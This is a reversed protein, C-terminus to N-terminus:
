ILGRLALGIATTYALSESKSIPPLEKAKRSDAPVINVWPNALEVKKKLTLTLFSVLGKLQAGGGCLLVKHIFGDKTHEHTVHEQYFTISKQIQECLDTLIPTLADFVKGEMKTKDLGYKLKIEEAKDRKLKLEKAIVKTFDESSIPIEQTFRLARNSFVIVETRVAGLDIILRAQGAESPKILSRSIAVSEPEMAVVELNINKLVKLYSDIIKKPCAALFVDLHDITRSREGHISTSTEIIEWGLHVKKRELPINAEAEWKIAETVEEPKMKPIQVVKTFVKEEPLALNVYKTRVPKGKVKELAERIVKSVKKGNKIEGKVILGAPIEKNLFSRLTLYGRKKELQVIKLTLDSLDLGFSKFEM